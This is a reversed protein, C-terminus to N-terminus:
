PHQCAYLEGQLTSVQSQLSTVTRGLAAIQSADKQMTSQLNLNQQKASALEVNLKAIEDNAKSLNSQTTALENTKQQFLGVTKNVDGQYAQLQTQTQNLSALTGALTQNCTASSKSADLYQNGLSSLRQQYVVSMGAILVIGVLIIFLLFLNVQKKMFAM